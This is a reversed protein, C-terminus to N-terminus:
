AGTTIASYLNSTTQNYADKLRKEWYPFKWEGNEYTVSEAHRTKMLQRIFTWSSMFSPQNLNGGALSATFDILGVNNFMLNAAQFTTGTQILKSVAGYATDGGSFLWDLGAGIVNGANSNGFYENSLFVKEYMDAITLNVELETPLHHVTHSEGGNGGRTVSLETVIGLQCNFQGKSFAQVIFPSTYSNPGYQRPLSFALLKALPRLVYWFISERDGYPSVLKIKFTHQTATDSDSYIEPLSINNGALVTTVGESLNGFLRGVVPIRSTVSSIVSGISSWNFLGAGKELGAANMLFGWEKSVNSAERITASLQSETTENTFSQNISSEPSYYAYVATDYGYQYGMGLGKDTEIEEHYENFNMYKKTGASTTYELDGIDLWAIFMHCLTNVYHTYHTYDQMFSYFRASSGKFVSYLFQKFGEAPGKDKFMDWYAKWKGFTAMLSSVADGNSYEPANSNGYDDSWKPNIVPGGPKICAVASDYIIEEMYQKGYTSSGVRMDANPLFQLPLGIISRHSKLSYAEAYGGYLQDWFKMSAATDGADLQAQYDSTNEWETTGSREDLPEQEDQENINNSSPNETGFSECYLYMGPIVRVWGAYSQTDPDNLTFQVYVYFHSGDSAWAIIPIGNEFTGKRTYMLEIYGPVAWSCLTGNKAGDKSIFGNITLTSARGLDNKSYVKKYKKTGKDITFRHMTAELSKCYGTASEAFTGDKSFKSYTDDKGMKTNNDGFTKNYTKNDGINDGPYTLFHWIDTGDTWAVSYKGNRGYSDDTGIHDAHYEMINSIPDKGREDHAIMNNSMTDGDHYTHGNFIKLTKTYKRKGYDTDEFWDSVKDGNYDGDPTINPTLLHRTGQYSYTEIDGGDKFSLRYKYYPEYLAAGECLAVDSLANNWTVTGCLETAPAPINTNSISKSITSKFKAFIKKYYASLWEEGIANWIGDDSQGTDPINDAFVYMGQKVRTWKYIRNDGGGVGFGLFLNKKNEDYYYKYCVLGRRTNTTYTKGSKDTVVAKRPTTFKGDGASITEVTLEIPWNNTASGEYITNTPNDYANGSVDCTWQVFFKSNGFNSTNFDSKEEAQPLLGRLVALAEQTAKLDSTSIYAM